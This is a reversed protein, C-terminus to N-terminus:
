IGAKRVNYVEKMHRVMIQIKKSEVLSDGCRGFNVRLIPTDIKILTNDWIMSGQPISIQYATGEHHVIMGNLEM